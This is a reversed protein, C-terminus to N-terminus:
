DPRGPDDPEQNVTAPDEEFPQEEVLGAESLAVALEEAAADYDFEPEPPTANAAEYLASSADNLNYGGGHPTEQEIEGQFSFRVTVVGRGRDIIAEEQRAGYVAHEAAEQFVYQGAVEDTMHELKEAPVTVSTSLTVKGIM